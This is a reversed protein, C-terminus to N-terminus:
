DCDMPAEGGMDWDVLHQDERVPPLAAEVRDAALPEFRMLAHPNLANLNLLPRPRPARPPLNRIAVAQVEVDVVVGEVHPLNDEVLPRAAGPINNIHM